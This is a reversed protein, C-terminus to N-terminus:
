PFSVFLGTLIETLMFGAHRSALFDTLYMQYTIQVWSTTAWVIWFIFLVTMFIMCWFMKTVFLASQQTIGWTCQEIIWTTLIVLTPRFDGSVWTKYVCSAFNQPKEYHPRYVRYVQVDRLSLCVSPRSVTAGGREAYCWATIFFYLKTECSFLEVKSNIATNM